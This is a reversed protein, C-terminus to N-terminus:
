RRGGLATTGCMVCGGSSCSTRCEPAWDKYIPRRREEEEEGGKREPQCFFRPRGRRLPPINNQAAPGAPGVNAGPRQLGCHVPGGSPPLM